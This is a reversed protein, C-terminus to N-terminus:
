LLATYKETNIPRLSGELFRYFSELTSKEKCFAANQDSVPDPASDYLKGFQLQCIPILVIRELM